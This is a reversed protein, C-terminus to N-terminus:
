QSCLFAEQNRRPRDGKWFVGSRERNSINNRLPGKPQRAAVQKIWVNSLQQIVRPVRYSQKLVTEFFGALQHELLVEPAAGAFGYVTQDDDGAMLLYEANRGWQRLLALQLRSLDQAEDVVIVSPAGPAIKLGRLADELLDTFDSLHACRKWESWVDAFRCVRAPWLDPAIMEARLLQMQRYLDDGVTTDQFDTAGQDVTADTPTLRYGPHLSNWEQYKGEAIRRRRLARFCHAHLTGVNEEPIPLNRGALEIAAARTFSTVLVNGRGYKEAAREIQKSLYTTKGCGPPGWIRAEAGDKLNEGENVSWV